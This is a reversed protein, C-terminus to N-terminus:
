QRLGNNYALFPHCAWELDLILQQELQLRKLIETDQEHTLPSHLPLTVSVPSTHCKWCHPCVALKSHHLSLQGQLHQNIPQDINWLENITVLM